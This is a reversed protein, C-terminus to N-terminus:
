SLFSRVVEGEEFIGVADSTRQGRGVGDFGDVLLELNQPSIAASVKVGLFGRFEFQTDDDGGELGSLPVEDGSGDLAREVLEVSQELNPELGLLARPCLM